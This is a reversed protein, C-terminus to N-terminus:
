ATEPTWQYEAELKLEAVGVGAGGETFDTELTYGGDKLQGCQLWPEDTADIMQRNGMLARRVDAILELIARQPQEPDHTKLGITIDLTDLQLDVAGGEGPEAGNIKFVVCPTPLQDVNASPELAITMPTALWLDPHEAAHARIQEGLREIIQLPRATPRSM